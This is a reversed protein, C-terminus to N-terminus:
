KDFQLKKVAIVMKDDKKTVTGTVTGNKAATCIEEHYMKNSKADFYYLVEKDGKKEVIVTACAKAIGLDCKPCTIWRQAPYL